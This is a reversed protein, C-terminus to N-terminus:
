TSTYNHIWTVTHTMLNSDPKKKKQFLTKARSVWRKGGKEKVSLPKCYFVQVVQSVHSKHCLQVFGCRPTPPPSLPADNHSDHVSLDVPETDFQDLPRQQVSGGEWVLKGLICRASQGTTMTVKLVTRLFSRVSRSSRVNVTNCHSFCECWIKWSNWINERDSREECREEGRWLTQPQDARRSERTGPTFLSRLSCIYFM